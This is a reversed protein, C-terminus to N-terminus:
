RIKQFEKPLFGMISKFTRTFHSQDSFGCLYSIETLSYDPNSMLGIARKVKLKRMYEGYTCKFFRKFNKSITTPHIDVQESIEKLSLSEDWRDNLLERLLNIWKPTTDLAENGLSHELFAIFSIEISTKAEIGCTMMEHLLRAFFLTEDKKQIVANRVDEIAYDTKDFFTQNLELSIHKSPFTLYHNSHPEYAEYFSLDGPGRNITKNSRYEMNRGYLVYSLMPSQHHHLKGTQVPSSYSTIGTLLNGFKRTSYSPALYHGRDLELSKKEQIM